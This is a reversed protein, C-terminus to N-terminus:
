CLKPYSLFFRLSRMSHWEMGISFRGVMSVHLYSASQLWQCRAERFPWFPFFGHATWAVRKIQRWAPWPLEDIHLWPNYKRASLSTSNPSEFNSHLFHIPTGGKIARVQNFFRAKVTHPCSLHAPHSLPHPLRPRPSLFHVSCPLLFANHREQPTFNVHICVHFWTRPWTSGTRLVQMMNLNVWRPKSSPDTVLNGLEAVHSGPNEIQFASCYLEAPRLAKRNATSQEGRSSAFAGHDLGRPSSRRNSGIREHKVQHYFRPKPHSRCRHM